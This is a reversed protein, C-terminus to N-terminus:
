GSTQWDEQIQYSPTHHWNIGQCHFYGIATSASEKTTYERCCTPNRGGGTYAIDLLLRSLIFWRKDGKHFINIVCVVALILILGFGVPTHWWFSLGSNDSLPTNAIIIAEYIKNM